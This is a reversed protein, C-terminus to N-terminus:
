FRSPVRSGVRNKQAKVYSPSRYEVIPPREAPSVIKLGIRLNVTEAAAPSAAIVAAIVFSLAFSNRKVIDGL